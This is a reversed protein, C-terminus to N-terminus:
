YVIYLVIYLIYYTIYYLIICYLIIYYLVIYYLIYILLYYIFIYIYIHIYMYKCFMYEPYSCTYIDVISYKVSVYKFIYIHINTDFDTHIYIHQIHKYRLIFVPTCREDLLSTEAYRHILTNWPKPTGAYRRVCPKPTRTGSWSLPTYPRIGSNQHLSTIAYRRRAPNWGLPTVACVCNRVQFAFM